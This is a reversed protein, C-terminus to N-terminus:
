RRWCNWVSVAATAQSSAWLNWTRCFSQSSNRDSMNVVLDRLASHVGQGSQSKTKNVGEHLRSSLAQLSKYIKELDVTEESAGQVSGAVEVGTSVLKAVFDVFQLVNSALGLATLPDM